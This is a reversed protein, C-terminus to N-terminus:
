RNDRAISPRYDGSAASTTRACKQPLQHGRREGNLSQNYRTTVIHPAACSLLRCRWVSECTMRVTHQLSDVTVECIIM